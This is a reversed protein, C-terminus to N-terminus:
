GRGGKQVRAVDVGDVGCVTEGSDLWLGGERIVITPGAESHLWIRRALMNRVIRGAARLAAIHLRQHLASLPTM